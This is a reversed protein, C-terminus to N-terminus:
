SKCLLKVRVLSIVLLILYVSSGFLWEGRVMLLDRHGSLSGLGSGCSLWGCGCVGIIWADAREVFESSGLLHADRPVRSSTTGVGTSSGFMSEVRALRSGFFGVVVVVKQDAGCTM